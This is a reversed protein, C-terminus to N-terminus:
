IVIQKFGFLTPQHVQNTSGSIRAGEHVLPYQEWKILTIDIRRQLKNMLNTNSIGSLWWGVIRQLSYHLFSIFPVSYRLYILYVSCM